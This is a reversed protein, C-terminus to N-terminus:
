NQGALARQPWAYNAPASRTAPFVLKIHGRTELYKRASAFRKTTWGKPPMITAMANAVVFPRGWHHRMLKTLLIFADPDEGMIEDV